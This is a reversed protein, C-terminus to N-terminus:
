EREKIFQKAKCINVFICDEVNKVTDIFVDIAEETNLGNTKKILECEDKYKEYVCKKLFSM